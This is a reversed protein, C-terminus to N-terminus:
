RVVISQDEHANLMHYFASSAVDLLNATGKSEVAEPASWRVEAMTASRNSDAPNLDQAPEPAIVLLVDSGIQTAKLGSEHRNALHSLISDTDTIKLSSLDEGNM